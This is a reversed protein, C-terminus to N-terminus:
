ADGPATAAAYAGIVANRSAPTQAQVLSFLAERAWRQASSSRLMARGAQVTILLSTADNALRTLSGRLRLREEIERGPDVDDILTYARARQEVLQDSWRKALELAEEWKRGAAEHHLADIAARGLGVVAPPVNATRETDTRSWEDKSLAHAVESDGLTLNDLVAGVTSTGQMAALRLEGIVRLGPRESAPLLFQVVEGDETDAMLLLVDALGWSTIWDLRGNVLWGGSDRKAVVTPRQRRLHAFSVAGLMEGKTLGSAFQDRLAENATSAAAITPSSHQATVFWLAGSAAALREHIERVQQATWVDGVGATLVDLSALRRVDDRTVGDRELREADQGFADVAELVTLLRDSTVCRRDPGIVQQTVAGGYPAQGILGDLRAM